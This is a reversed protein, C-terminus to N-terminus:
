RALLLPPRRSRFFVPRTWFVRATVPVAMVGDARDTILEVEVPAQDLGAAAELDDLEIIVEFTANGQTGITATEAKFVVTGDVESDDPAGLDVLAVEVM